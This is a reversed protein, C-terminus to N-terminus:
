RARKPLKPRSFTVTGDPNLTKTSGDEVMQAWPDYTGTELTRLASKANYAVLYNLDASAQKLAARAEPTDIYGLAVAADIRPSDLADTKRRPRRSLLVNGIVSVAEPLRAIRWLAAAAAVRITETVGSALLPRLLPEANKSGLEGLARLVWDDALPRQRLRDLLVAEVRAREEASMKALANTDPCGDRWSSARDDFHKWFQQELETMMSWSLSTEAM